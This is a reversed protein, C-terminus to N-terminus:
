IILYTNLSISLEIVTYLYLFNVSIISDIRIPVSNGNDTMFSIRINKPFYGKLPSKIMTVIKM